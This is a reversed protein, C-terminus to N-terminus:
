ISLWKLIGKQAVYRNLAQKKVISKKSKIVDSTVELNINAPLCHMFIADKKGQNILNSNVQFKKLKEEKSNDRDNMSTYVDTMFCDTNSIVEKNIDYFININEFNFINKKEQYILNDTFINLKINGFIDIIECLSYLVNNMDGFWSISINELFGFHEKLTYIDSIAQCPHSYDSLANIIPKNFYKLATVLKNHSDTRYVIMDLYCSLIEFTDEFSEIRKINMEDFDIKIPEGGLNNIATHFSLRTRTSYKEFIMGINMNKLPKTDDSKLEDAFNFINTIDGKKLDSINLLSKM